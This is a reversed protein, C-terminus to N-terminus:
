GHFVGGPVLFNIIAYLFIFLLLGVVSNIIISIGQQTKSANGNSTIYYLSGWIIGGVVAIGVGIALFNIITLLVSTVTTEGPKTNKDCGFDISTQTDGCCYVTSSPTCKAQVPGVVLLPSM